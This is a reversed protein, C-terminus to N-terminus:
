KDSEEVVGKEGGNVDSISVGVEEEKERKTFKTPTFCIRTVLVM